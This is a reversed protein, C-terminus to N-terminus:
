FYKVSYRQPRTSFPMVKVLPKMTNNDRKNIGNEAIEKVKPCPQSNCPRTMIPNGDCAKGGTKPPVCMRHLTSIGGGCKLSCQTWDQLMIWYGDTPNDTGNVSLNGKGDNLMKGSTGYDPNLMNQITNDVPKQKINFVGKDRQGM